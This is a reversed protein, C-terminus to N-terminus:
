DLGRGRGQFIQLSGLPIRKNKFYNRSVNWYNGSKDYALNEGMMLRTKIKQWHGIPKLKRQDIRSLLLEKPIIGHPYSQNHYHNM